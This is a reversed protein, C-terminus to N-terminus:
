HYDEIGIIVVVKETGHGRLEVILRYRDNLRLSVQHARNGKLKEFRLSKYARLTREDPAARIQQMRKRFATVIAGDYEGGSGADSEIRQLRPDRFEVNVPWRYM